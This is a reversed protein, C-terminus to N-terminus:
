IAKAKQIVLLTDLSAKAEVLGGRMYHVPHQPDAVIQAILDSLRQIAEAQSLHTRTPAGTSSPTTM